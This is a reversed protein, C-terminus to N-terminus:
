AAKTNSAVGYPHGGLIMYMGATITNSWARWLAGALVKAIFIFLAVWLAVVFLRVVSMGTGHM